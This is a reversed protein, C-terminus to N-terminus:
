FIRSIPWACRHNKSLLILLQNEQFNSNYCNQCLPIPYKTPHILLQVSVCSLPITNPINFLTSHFIPKFPFALHSSTSVSQLPPSIPFQIPHFSFSIPFLFPICLLFLYRIAYPIFSFYLTIHSISHFITYFLLYFSISTSMPSVVFHFLIHLPRFYISLSIHVIFKLIGNFSPIFYLICYWSPQFPFQVFVM